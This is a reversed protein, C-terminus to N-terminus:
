NPTRSEFPLLMGRGYTWEKKMFGMSASVMEGYIAVGAQSRYAWKQNGYDFHWWQSDDRAFGEEQMIMLLFRLNDCVGVQPGEKAPCSTPAAKWDCYASGMDLDEGSVEDVITLDVAGGTTHPPIFDENSGKIAAQAVARELLQQDWQPYHRAFDNWCAAYIKNQVDRPRWGDWIKFRMDRKQLHNKQIQELKGAVSQRLWVQPNRTYGKRFHQPERIFPYNAADVMPEDCEIIPVANYAPIDM